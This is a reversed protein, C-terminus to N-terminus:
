RRKWTDNLTAKRHMRSHESHSLWILEAPPRNYYLELKILSQRTFRVTCDPHLELRHHINWGDLNDKAALEYNEILDIRGNEVYRKMHNANNRANHSKRFELDNHYREKKCEKSRTIRSERFEPDNQYREKQRATNRAKRHEYKAEGYRDIFEQKTM